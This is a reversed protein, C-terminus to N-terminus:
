MRVRKRGAAAVNVSGSEFAWRSNRQAMRLRVWLASGRIRANIIENRGPLLTGNAKSIGLVDASQSSLMEWNCGQHRDSLNVQLQTFRAEFDAEEPLVPGFLVRSDIAYGDDELADGSWHRLRGDECGFLLVRDGPADGDLVYVATPQLTPEALQDEWWAGTRQEWFYNSVITGGAGYPCQIVHLGDDRANWALVFYFDSMDVDLLRQEITMQTLREPLTYPPALRFIGGRSGAFYAVGNPDKCWAQQGFAGGTIDSILDFEGGAMPDGTMRQITHDGGVILFDDMLPAMFNIIDPCEGIRSDSGIVAQQPDVVAPGTDADYPDGQRLMAWNNASDAGRGFTLRGRWHTLLAFRAPMKGKKPKYDLVTDDVPNAVRVSKGDTAFIEGFLSTACIYDATSTLQPSALTKPGAPATIASSDFWKFSGGAIALSKVSRPSGTTKGVTLLPVKYLTNTDIVPSIGGRNTVLYVFEARSLPTAPSYRPVAPDAAVALGAPLNGTNTTTNLQFLVTGNKSVAVMSRQTSGNIEFYPLYVNGYSDVGLRPYTYDADDPTGAGALTGNTIGWAGDAGQVSYGDGGDIVRRLHYTKEGSSSDFRPGYSYVAQHSTVTLTGAAITAASWSGGSIVEGEVLDKWGTSRVVITGAGATAGALVVSVIGAAGSTAGTVALGVSPASGSGGSYTLTALIVPDPAVAVALGVGGVEVAPFTGGDWARVLRSTLVWKLAGNQDLKGLLPNISNLLLPESEFAPGDVQPTGSTATLTNPATITEAAQFTGSVDALVLTGSSATGGWRIEKLRGKAGSTGGTIQQGVLPLAGTGSSYPLVTLKAISKRPAGFDLFFPHPYHGPYYSTAGVLRTALM